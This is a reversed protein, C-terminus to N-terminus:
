DAKSLLESYIRFYEDIIVDWNFNKAYGSFVGLKCSKIMTVLYQVGAAIDKPDKPNVGRAFPKDSLYSVMGTGYSKGFIVPVNQSIAEIFTLGFLENESPLVFIHSNHYAQLIKESDTIEGLYRVTSEGIISETFQRYYSKENPFMGGIITLRCKLGARNLMKTAEVVEMVHKYRVIRGIYLLELIDGDAPTRVDESINSIFRSGIGNPITISKKRIEERLESGHIMALLNERHIDALFIVKSAGRLVNNALFRRHLMFKYQKYIDTMRLAVIYPTGTEKSLHYAIAGDTFLNHAHILSVGKGLGRKKIDSHIKHIKKFYLVKDDPSINNVYHINGNELDIPNKHAWGHKLPVYIDQRYTSDLRTYIEKYLPYGCYYANLHLIKDM